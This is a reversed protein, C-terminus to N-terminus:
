LFLIHNDYFYLHFAFVLLGSYVIGKRRELEYNGILLAPYKGEHKRRKEM